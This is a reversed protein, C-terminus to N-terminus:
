AYNNCIWGMQILGGRGARSRGPTSLSGGRGPQRWRQVWEQKGAPEGTKSLSPPQRPPRVPDVCPIAFLLHPQCRTPFWILGKGVPSAGPSGKQDEICM